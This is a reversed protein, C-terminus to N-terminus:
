YTEVSRAIVQHINRINRIAQSATPNIVGGFVWVTGNFYWKRLGNTIDPIYMLDYGTGNFSVSPDADLLYLAQSVGAASFQVAPSAATTFNVATGSSMYGPIQSNIYYTVGGFRQLSFSSAAGTFTSAATASFNVQRATTSAAVQFNSGNETVVGRVSSGSFASTTAIKTSLDLGMRNDIRAIVKDSAAGSSTSYGM